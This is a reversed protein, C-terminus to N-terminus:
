LFELTENAPPRPPRPPPPPALPDPRAGGGGPPADPAPLACEPEPPTWPVCPGPWGDGGCGDLPLRYLPHGAPAMEIPFRQEIVFDGLKLSDEIEDSVGAIVYLEGTRSNYWLDREDVPVPYALCSAARRSFQFSGHDSDAWEYRRRRPQLIARCEVPPYYGGAVGAGYCVPCEPEVIQRTARDTCRPCRPGWVRRKLLCGPSADPSNDYALAALRALEMAQLWGREDLYAGAQAPQSFYVGDAPRVAGGAFLDLSQGFLREAPDLAVGSDFVLAGDARFWEGQPTRAWEVGFAAEGGPAFRKSLRWRVVTNGLFRHSVRVEAFASEAV